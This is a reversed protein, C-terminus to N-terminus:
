PLGRLLEGALPAAVRGGFGGDEVLWRSPSTAPSAPSGRTRARRCRPGFEATGTKGSVPEGPVDRLVTATGETVVARM